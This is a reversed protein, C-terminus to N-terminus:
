GRKTFGRRWPHTPAPRPRPSPPSLPPTPLAARARHDLADRGASGGAVREGEAVMPASPSLTREGQRARLRPAELPAPQTAIRQGQQWVSLSGDLHERVEVRCHAYPGHGRPPLLQLRHEGLRVTDDRGVTRVYRFCCIQWPDTQPDLPRWAPAAVTAPVAFRANFRPLYAALVANAELLTRAGALQLEAVLRDQLTGFLREIRGKAQPSHAVLSAIGLERLARGVQTPERAGTLQEALTEQEHAPRVFIGHRDHYVAEPVGVTRVVEYLVALYGAADEQERFVAAPVTGTADDIAAVLALRPGREALWAHPSADLQLLMGAQPKRERRRRHAPLRRQRPRELGAARRLRRVTHRSLSIGAEEALLESLHTDNLGAYTTQALAIVRQGLAPDLAHAPTRGRNGHALAAAGEKRYAALMRRVQRVSRELAAAAEAATLDGMLVRNLVVLRQQETGTLSVTEWM